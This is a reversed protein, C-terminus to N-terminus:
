NTIRQRGEAGFRAGFGLPAEGDGGSMFRTGDLGGPGVRFRFGGAAARLFPGTIWGLGSGVLVVFEESGGRGGLYSLHLWDLTM